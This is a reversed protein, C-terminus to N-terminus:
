LHTKLSLHITFLYFTFTKFVKADLGKPPPPRIRKQLPLAVAPCVTWQVTQKSRGKLDARWIDLRVFLGIRLSQDKQPM